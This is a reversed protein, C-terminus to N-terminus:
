LVGIHKLQIFNKLKHPLPLNLVKTFPSYGLLQTIKARCIVDLRSPQQRIAILEATFAENIQLEVPIDDDVLWREQLCQPKLEMMVQMVEISGYKAALHFGTPQLKMDSERTYLGWRLLVLVSATHSTFPVYGLQAENWEVKDGLHHYMHQMCHDLIASNKCLVAETFTMTPNSVIDVGHEVLLQVLQFNDLRMAFYILKLGAYHNVNPNSNYKLLLKCMDVNEKEVARCIPIDKVKACTNPDAGSELLMKVLAINGCDIAFTLPTSSLKLIRNVDVKVRCEDLLLKVLEMSGSYLAEEFPTIGAENELNPDAPYHVNTILVKVIELNKSCCALHLSSEQTLPASNPDVKIENM